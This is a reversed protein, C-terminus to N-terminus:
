KNNRLNNLFADTEKKTPLAPIAGPKTTTLAGVANARDLIDSIEDPTLTDLNIQTPQTELLGVLVAAVFGDGAGTTEVVPVSLGGFYKHIRGNNFYCGKEGRSIIIWKVGYAFIKQCGADFDKTGTILEWEEESLKVIDAFHFGERIQERSAEPSPWLSLRLNPDYSTVLGYKKALRLAAFTTKRPLPDIMSISGYHFIKATQFYTKNLDEPSLFMDAGPNRYFLMDKNGDSRVGVFVLTTRATPEFKLFTVDVGNESLVQALYHGFADEGVKGVFGSTHGLKAVGVAVNAPAGGPAKVFGPANGITVDATTAVFDILLEGLCLIEVPM